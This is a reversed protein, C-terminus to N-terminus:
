RVFEILYQNRSAEYAAYDKLEGMIYDEVMPAYMADIEIIIDALTFGIEFDGLEEAVQMLLYADSAIQMARKLNSLAIHEDMLDNEIEMDIRTSLAVWDGMLEYAKERPSTASESLKRIFAQRKISAPDIRKARIRRNAERAARSLTTGFGM